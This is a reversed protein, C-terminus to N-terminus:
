ALNQHAVLERKACELLYVEREISLGKKTSTAITELNHAIADDIDVWMPTMGNNIEHAEFQTKGLESDIDCTFCYSLMRLVNYGDRDWPRYEEYLGFAKINCIGQAGTEERLERILGLELPEGEDLGGGPLSYDHYRQTYLMLVQRGKLVIARTALRTLMADQHAIVFAAPTKPHYHTLLHRM